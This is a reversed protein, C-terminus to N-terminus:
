FCTWINPAAPMLSCISWPALGGTCSRTPQIQKWGLAKTLDGFLKLCPYFSLTQTKSLDSQQGSQFPFWTHTSPWNLFELLQGCSLCHYRPSHHHHPPPSFHVSLFCNWPYFATEYIFHCSKSISQISPFSFSEQTEPKHFPIFLQAIRQALSYQFFGLLKQYPLLGHNPHLCLFRFIGKLSWFFTLSATPNIPHLQSPVRPSFFPLNTHQKWKLPLASETIRSGPNYIGM